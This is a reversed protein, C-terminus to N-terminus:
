IIEQHKAFIDFIRFQHKLMIKKEELKFLRACRKAAPPIFSTITLIMLYIGYIIHKLFGFKSRM